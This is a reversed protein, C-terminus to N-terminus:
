FMNKLEKNATSSGILSLRLGIMSGKMLSTKLLECNPLVSNGLLFPTLCREM